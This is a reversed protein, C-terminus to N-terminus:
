NVSCTSCPLGALPSLDSLPSRDHVKSSGCNLKKLRQRVADLQERPPLPAVMKLWAAEEAPLAAAAGPSKWKNRKGAQFRAKLIPWILRWGMRSPAVARSDDIMTLYWHPRHPL